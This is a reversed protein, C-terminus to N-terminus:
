YALIAELLAEALADQYWNQTCRNHEWRNSIFGGEVLVATYKTQNLVKYTGKRKPGRDRTEIREMIESQIKSALRHGNDSMYFTEIGKISTDPHANFHISIFLSDVYRNALATRDEIRIFTDDRRTLVVPIDREKLLKELKLAVKLALVKEDTGYWAAGEDKGGHGADVIITRPKEIVKQAILNSCAGATLLSGLFLRLLSSFIRTARM